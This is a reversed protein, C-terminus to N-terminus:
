ASMIRLSHIADVVEELTRGAAAGCPAHGQRLGSAHEAKMPATGKRIPSYAPICTGM